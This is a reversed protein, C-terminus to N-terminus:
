FYITVLLSMLPASHLILMCFDNINSYVPFSYDLFSIVLVFGNVVPHLLVFCKLILKVLYICTECVSFLQFFYNNLINQDLEVVNLSYYYVIFAM